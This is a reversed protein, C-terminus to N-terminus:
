KVPRLNTQAVSPPLGLTAIDTRELFNALDVIARDHTGIMLVNDRWAVEVDFRLKRRNVDTLRARVEVLAGAPAPAVHRVHVGTGVSAEGREYCSSACREAAREILGILAATGLVTVEANGYAEASHAADTKITFAFTLGPEIPKM